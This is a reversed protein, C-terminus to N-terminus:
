SGAAWPKEIPKHLLVWLLNVRRPLWSASRFWPRAFKKSGHRQSLLRSSCVGPSSQFIGEREPKTFFPHLLIAVCCDWCYTLHCKCWLFLLHQYVPHLIWLGKQECGLTWCRGARFNVRGAPIECSAATMKITRHSPQVARADSSNSNLLVSEQPYNSLIIFFFFLFTM